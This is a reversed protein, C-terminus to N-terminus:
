GELAFVISNLQNQLDDLKAIMYDQVKGEKKYAFSYLKNIKGQLSTIRRIMYGHNPRALCKNLHDIESQLSQPFTSAIM